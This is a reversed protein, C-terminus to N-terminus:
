HATSLSLPPFITPANEVLWEISMAKGAMDAFEAGPNRSRMLTPGFVVGLNRATMLNEGHHEQIGHLHLMLVRLTYYHETPLQKVLDAYKASKHVPDQISSAYIFEDHLVFTLLPNPLSRFYSKLVSTVSCIDNFRDRDLLDFMTYDGREFLQTILKTQGAGGTKRYIGEYDMDSAEVAAICKEVILPVMRESHKSDARVQETLERGFMTPQYSGAVAGDDRRSNQPSCLAHVSQQCRSHVSIHCTQCRIQSGWLKEGCQDCRSLRLVSVQQFTHKLRTKETSGDQAASAATAEKNNGRWKFVRMPADGTTPKPAVKTIKGSEASEDSFAGISSNVTHSSLLPAHRREFQKERAPIPSESSAAETRRVYHAHLQALEENRANLMTTEELVVERASQLEAIDRLLSEREDTLSVLEGKYQVKLNDLRTSLSRSINEGDGDAAPGSSRSSAIEEMEVLAVDREVKLKAVDQELVNLNDQLDSTLQKHLEDKRGHGSLATIRAAQGSLLVRLRSIEAEADRRAKLEVEYESHAVTLGDMAQQSARKIDDLRGKMRVNDDRRQEIMMVVAQVFEQDLTIQTTGRRAADQLADQLRKIVAYSSDVKLSRALSSDSTTATLHASPELPSEDARHVSSNSGLPAHRHDSALSEYSRELSSRSSPTSLANPKGRQHPSLDSEAANTTEPHDLIIFSDGHGQSSPASLTTTSSNDATSPYGFTTTPTIASAPTSSRRGESKASAYPNLSALGRGTEADQSLKVFEEISYLSSRNRPDVQALLEQFGNASISFRIPPHAPAIFTSRSMREVPSSEEESDADGASGLFSVEGPERQSASQKADLEPQGPRRRSKAENEKSPLSPTRALERTNHEREGDSTDTGSEIGHPVDVKHAPSAAKYAPSTPRKGTGSSTRSKEVDISLSSGGRPKDKEDFSTRGPASKMSTVPQSRQIMLDPDHISAKLSHTRPPIRELMAPPTGTPDAAPKPSSQTRSRTRSLMSGTLPPLTEAHTKRSPRRSLAESAQERSPLPRADAHSLTQGVDLSPPLTSSPSQPASLSRNNFESATSEYNFSIAPNISNRKGARSGPVRFSHSSSLPPAGNMFLADLPRTGDEYSKRREIPTPAEPMLFSAASGNDDYPDQQIYSLAIQPGAEPLESPVVIVPSSPGSSYTQLSSAAAQPSLASPSTPSPLPTGSTRPSHVPVAPIHPASRREDRVIQGSPRRTQSTQSRTRHVGGSQPPTAPRPRTQPSSIIPPSRPNGASEPTFLGTPANEPPAKTPPGHSKSSGGERPTNEREKQKQAHRRSRAVRQHHCSMCYIGHSTKAFMLEDIRNRCSRCKFCHAHYSDDGTMIAEDLIPQHCVSCSYSCNSCVPQGDSLLLLNTDATVRDRCKACKFCDVHFFSQGFAIVVGGNDDMVTLQCGPCIKNEASSVPDLLSPAASPTPSHTYPVSQSLNHAPPSITALM